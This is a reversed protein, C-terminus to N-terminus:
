QLTAKRAIYESEAQEAYERFRMVSNVCAQCYQSNGKVEDSTIETRFPAHTAAIHVDRGCQAISGGYCALHWKAMEHKKFWIGM